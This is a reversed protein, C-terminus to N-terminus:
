ADGGPDKEWIYQSNKLQLAGGLDPRYTFTLTAKEGEADRYYFIYGIGGAVSKSDIKDITHSVEEGEGVGYTLTHESFKLYRDAYNPASTKWKGILFQPVVVERECAVVLPLIFSVIIVIYKYRDAFSGRVNRLAPSGDIIIIKGGM